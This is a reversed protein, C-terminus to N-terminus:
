SCPRGTSQLHPACTSAPLQRTKGSETPRTLPARHDPHPAIQAHRMRVTLTASRMLFLEGNGRATTIVAQLRAAATWARERAPISLARARRRELTAESVGLEQSMLQLPASEPPLLRAVARDKFAQGYRAM